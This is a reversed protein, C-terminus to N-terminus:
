KNVLSKGLSIEPFAQVRPQTAMSPTPSRRSRCMELQTSFAPLGYSTCQSLGPIRGEEKLAEIEQELNKIVVKWKFNGKAKFSALKEMSYVLMIQSSLLTIFKIGKALIHLSCLFIWDPVLISIFGLFSIQCLLSLSM